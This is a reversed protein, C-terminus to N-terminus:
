WAIRPRTRAPNSLASWYSRRHHHLAHQEPAALGSVQIFRAWARVEAGGGGTDVALWPSRLESARAVNMEPRAFLPLRCPRQCGQM